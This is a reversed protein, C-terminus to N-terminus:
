ECVNNDGNIRIFGLIEKGVNKVMITDNTLIVTIYYLIQLTANRPMTHLHLSYNHEFHFPIILLEVVIDNTM